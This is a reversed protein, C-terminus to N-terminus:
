FPAEGPKSQLPLLSTMQCNRRRVCDWCRAIIEMVVEPPLGLNVSLRDFLDHGGTPHTRELDLYARWVQAHEPSTCTEHIQWHM